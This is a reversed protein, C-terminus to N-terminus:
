PRKLKGLAPNKKVLYNGVGQLGQKIQAQTLNAYDDDVFTSMEGDANRFGGAKAIQSLRSGGAANRFGGAKAIQSLRSGGAANDFDDVFTAKEDADTATLKAGSAKQSMKWARGAVYVTVGIAALGLVWNLLNGQKMIKIIQNALAIRVFVV